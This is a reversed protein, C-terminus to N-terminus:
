GDGDIIPSQSESKSSMSNIEFQVPCKAFECFINCIKSVDIIKIEQIYKLNSHGSWLVWKYLSSRVTQGPNPRASSKRLPRRVVFGKPRTTTFSSVLGYGSLLREIQDNGVSIIPRTRDLPRGWHRVISEPIM